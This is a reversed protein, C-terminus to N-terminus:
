KRFICKHETLKVSVQEKCLICEMYLNQELNERLNERTRRPFTNFLTEKLEDKSM